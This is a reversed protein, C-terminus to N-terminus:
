VAGVGLRDLEAELAPVTHVGVVRHAEQGNQFFIMTPISMVNYKVAIDQNEDTNLRAVKVRGANKGAFDELIPAMMRCPMCWPAWFDVLTVTNSDLVDSKFTASTVDKM